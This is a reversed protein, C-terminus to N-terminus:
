VDSGHRCRLTDMRAAVRRVLQQRAGDGALEGGRLLHVASHFLDRILVTDICIDLHWITVFSSKGSVSVKHKTDNVNVNFTLTM